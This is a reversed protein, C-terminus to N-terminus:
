SARRKRQPPEGGRELTVPNPVITSLYRRSPVTTGRTIRGAEVQFGVPTTHLGLRDAIEAGLDVEVRGEAEAAVLDHSRLFDRASEPDPAELVVWIGPPLRGGLGAALAHCTACRDSLFLVLASPASDLEAPLGHRSPRTDAVEGLDVELPRDLIGAVERLQRVDRHLELVAGSFVFVVLALVGVAALTLEAM